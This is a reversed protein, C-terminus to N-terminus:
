QKLSFAAYTNAKSQRVELVSLPKRAADAELGARVGTKVVANMALSPLYCLSGVKEM